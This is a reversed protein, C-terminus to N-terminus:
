KDFPLLSIVGQKNEEGGYALVNHKPHWAVTKKVGKSTHTYVMEGNDVRCIDINYRKQVEDIGASAIFKDDKSFSIQNVISDRKRM